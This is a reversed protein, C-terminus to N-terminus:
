KDSWVALENGSPDAFHFRRGGPFSVIPKVISGGASMVKSETAELDQSYIVVLAGQAAAHDAAFFGGTLRGDTFDMYHPGYETFRWGFLQSYFAKTKGMNTAPFEVYDVQGESAM